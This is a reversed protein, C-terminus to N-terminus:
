PSYIVFAQYGALTEHQITKDLNCYVSCCKDLVDSRYRLNHNVEQSLDLFIYGHSKKCIDKYVEILGPNGIQRALHAFQQTDRPSKFHIIYKSNLSITRFHKERNFVNQTILIVSMNRHHSGRTFLESIAKATASENMLDDLIVLSNYPNEFDDPIGQIFTTKRRQDDNLKQQVPIISNEESYCWYIRTFDTDILDHANNLINIVLSSKGSGSSGSIICSFPTIFQKM